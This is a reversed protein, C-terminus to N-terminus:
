FVKEDGKDNSSLKVRGVEITSTRVGNLEVLSLTVRFCKKMKKIMEARSSEVCM